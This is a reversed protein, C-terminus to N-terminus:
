QLPHKKDRVIGRTGEGMIEKKIAPQTEPGRKSKKRWTKCSSNEGRKGGDREIQRERQRESKEAPKEAKGFSARATGEKTCPANLLKERSVVWGGEDSNETMGEEIGRHARLPKQRHQLGLCM